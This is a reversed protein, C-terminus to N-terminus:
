RILADNRNVNFTYNFNIPLNKRIYQDVWLNVNAIGTRPVLVVDYPQLLIDQSADDGSFARNVNVSFVQPQNNEDRRVVIVRSTDATEKMGEAVMLAQLLSVQGSLPQAGPKGVEGGIFVRMNPFGHVNVAVDARIVQDAYLAKLNQSLQATTLGAARVEGVLPLNIKGDPRVTVTNNLDPTYFFRLDLEDGTNIRYESPVSRQSQIPAAVSQPRAPADVHACGACLLGSLMPMVLYHTRM